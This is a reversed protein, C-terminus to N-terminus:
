TAMGRCWRIRLQLVGQFVAAAEQIVTQGAFDVSLVRGAASPIALPATPASEADVFRSEVEDVFQQVTSDDRGWIQFQVDQLIERSGRSQVGLTSGTLSYQARPLPAGEPAAESEGPYLPAITEHLGTNVWRAFIAERLAMTM